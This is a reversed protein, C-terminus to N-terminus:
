CLGLQLLTCGCIVDPNVVTAACCCSTHRGKLVGLLSSICTWHGKNERALALVASQGVCVRGEGQGARCGWGCVGLHNSLVQVTLAAKLQCVLKNLLRTHRICCVELCRVGCQVCHQLLHPCSM